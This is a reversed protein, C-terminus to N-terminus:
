KDNVDNNSVSNSEFLEKLKNKFRERAESIHKNIEAKKKCRCNIDHEDCEQDEKKM